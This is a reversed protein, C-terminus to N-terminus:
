PEHRAVQNNELNVPQPAQLVPNDRRSEAPRALSEETTPLLAIELRRNRARHDASDNPVVPDFEGAGAATLTGAPVGLSVLFEVSAVARAATLEWTTRFRKSKLPADDVHDSVLFRKAEAGAPTAVTQLAHAIEMMAGKGAPRVEARSPDFLLDGSVGLVLHGRRTEVRLQGADILPKFRREFDRFLATRSEAAAQAKRLEELRGRADELAKSLTGRETLIKDVDKGLRELEGRLQQNIATAEDLQAQVNHQTTSLDSIQSDRAQTVSEAAALRQTLDQMRATDEKQKADADARAKTADAVCRDYDTKMVLCSSSGFLLLLAAAFGRSSTMGKGIGDRRGNSWKGALARWSWVKGPWRM